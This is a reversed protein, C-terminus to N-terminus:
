PESSSNWPRPFRELIEGVVTVRFYDYPGLEHTAQEGTVLPVTVPGTVNEAGNLRTGAIDLQRVLGKIVQGLYIPDLLAEHVLKLEETRNSSQSLGGLTPVLGPLGEGDHNLVAIQPYAPPM